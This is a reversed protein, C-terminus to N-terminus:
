SASLQSLHYLTHSKIEPKNTRAGHQAHLRSLFVLDFRFVDKIAGMQYLLFGLRLFHSHSTWLRDRLQFTASGPSVRLLM